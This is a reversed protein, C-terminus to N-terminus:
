HVVEPESDEGDRKPRELAFVHEFGPQAKLWARAARRRELGGKGALFIKMAQHSAKDVYKDQCQLWAILLGVPRGQGRRRDSAMRSRDTHCCQAPTGLVPDPRRVHCDRECHANITNGTESWVICGDVGPVRLRRWIGGAGFAEPGAPPPPPPPSGGADGGGGGGEGGGDGGGDSGGAGDGGGDSGGFSGGGSRFSAESDSSSENPLLEVEAAGPPAPPVLAAPGAPAGPAGPLDVPGVRSIIKGIRRKSPRPAKKPGDLAALPDVEKPKKPKSFTPWVQVGDSWEAVIFTGLDSDGPAGVTILSAAHM